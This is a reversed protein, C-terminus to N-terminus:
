PSFIFLSVIFRFIYFVFDVFHNTKWSFQQHVCVLSTLYVFVYCLKVIMAHRIICDVDFFLKYKSAIHNPPIIGKQVLFFSHLIEQKSHLQKLYMTVMSFFPNHSNRIKMTWCSIYRYWLIIAESLNVHLLFNILFNNCSCTLRM